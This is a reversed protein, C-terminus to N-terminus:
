VLFTVHLRDVQAAVSDRTRRRLHAAHHELGLDAVVDEAVVRGDDAQLLVGSPQEAFLGAEVEGRPRHAVLGGHARERPAAVLDEQVGLRV